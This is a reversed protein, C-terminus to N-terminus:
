APLTDVHCVRTAGNAHQVTIKFVSISTAMRHQTYGYECAVITGLFFSTKSLRVKMQRGIANAMLMPARARLRQDNAVEQEERTM